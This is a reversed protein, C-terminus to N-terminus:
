IKNIIVLTFLASTHSSSTSFIYNVKYTYCVYRNKLRSSFTHFYNSKNWYYFTVFTMEYFFYLVKLPSPTVFWSRYNEHLISPLLVYLQCRETSTLYLVVFKRFSFVRGTAQVLSIVCLSRFLLIFQTWIEINTNHKTITLYMKNSCRCLSERALLGLSKDIFANLHAQVHFSVM